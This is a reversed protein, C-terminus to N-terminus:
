RAALEMGRALWTGLIASANFGIPAEDHGARETQRGRRVQLTLPAAADQSGPLQSVRIRAHQVTRVFSFQIM